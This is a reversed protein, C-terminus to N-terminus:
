GAGRGDNACAVEFGLSAASFASDHGATSPDDAHDHHDAVPRGGGRRSREAAGRLEAHGDRPQGALKTGDLQYLTVVDGPYTSSGLGGVSVTHRFSWQAALGTDLTPLPEYTGSTSVFHSAGEALVVAAWRGARGTCVPPSTSGGESSHATTRVNTSINVPGYGLPVMMPLYVAGNQNSGDALVRTGAAMRADGYSTWPDGIQAHMTTAFPVEEGLGMGSDDCYDCTSASEASHLRRRSDHVGGHLTTTTTAAM